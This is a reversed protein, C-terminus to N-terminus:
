THQLFTAAMKYITPSRLAVVSKMVHPLNTPSLTADKNAVIAACVSALPLTSPVPAPLYPAVSTKIINLSNPGGTWNFKRICEEQSLISGAEVLSEEDDSLSVAGAVDEEEEM